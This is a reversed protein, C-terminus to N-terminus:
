GTAGNNALMELVAMRVAVGNRVQETIVSAPGDALKGEIEVGRNMPGPHMVIADDAALKMRERSVGWARFYEADDPIGAKDMFREKQIRLVMVVDADAIGADFNTVIDAGPVADPALEPPAVLRLKGVGMAILGAAASMAVRSHAVDGVIAVTLNTFNGKHLRITLLDLLGQTPHSVNAEGANLVNVHAGVNRAIMAQTGVQRDRVVFMDIQMAQLTYITDLISEGKAASSTSLDLNLVDAGLRKAALEFSTRTRTSNELFLNAVTRGDLAKGRVPRQGPQTLFSEARDLLAVILDRDMGRLSLLHRLRGQEDLQLESHDASSTEKALKSLSM